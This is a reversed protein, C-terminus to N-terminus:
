LNDELVVVGDFVVCIFYCQIVIYVFLCFWSQVFNIYCHCLIGCLCFQYLNKCLIWFVYWLCWCRLDWMWNQLVGGFYWCVCVYVGNIICFCRCYNVSGVFRLVFFILAVSFYFIYFACMAFGFWIRLPCVSKWAFMGLSWRM